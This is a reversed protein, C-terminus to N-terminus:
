FSGRLGVAMQMGYEQEAYLKAYAPTRDGYRLFRYPKNLINNASAVFSLRKTLQYTGNIDLVTRAEIYEHGNPGYAALPARKDLGRHNWRATFTLRKNAFTAGWNASKPIFSSFAAGPSGDLELKTGNAFLTFYSGWKGLMRLNQKLNIEAGTIRADGANFKSNINWDLYRDPLGLEALVEPTGRRSADGFFNKLQKLFLGASILGGNDTYYEASLDFNDATWPLLAPNRVNLTGRFQGPQLDDDEDPDTASTNAVTRPIIDSFNPRGYTKAWAARVLLNESANYTFHVSPYYGDYERHTFFSRYSRTLLSEALSGAAGAEPRRLRQGAANRVFSGDANRQWIKETDVLGGIGDDVTKEFRVGGLVLLRNNFLQTDAQLYAAQVKEKINENNDIHGNRATAMQADTQQYLLPNLQFARYARLPSMWNVSPFGYGTEVGRYVQMLYPEIPATAASAGNPGMFTWTPSYINTDLMVRRESAGAQVSAPVPLFALRRRVNLYAQHTYSRNNLEANGATNGRLNAPDNWDILNNANDRVEIRGPRAAGPELDLFSIRVPFRQIASAQLFFGADFYRRKTQSASRSVGSEVRWVGDDYRYNVTSSDTIQNILQNTGNNNLTGRGTAGITQDENWALPTGGAISSTITASTGFTYSLSGIRTDTRSAVHGVSLVSNRTPKWDAKVSLTNRTLDRPGDLLALTTLIPNAYNIPTGAPSGPPVISTWTQLTRHQENFVRAHTGAVVIGFTKTVPWTFDMNAGPLIKWTNRDRHSHPTAKFDLNEHNAVLNLSYRLERGKREFASKSILNVSGALSDAPNAPTPVKSLEIRSIDNLAMSRIDVSRTATTWINSAPAGDNTVATMGGGIGRVSIGSVDALDSEVTVGPLFKIFEGVSGGLVDGLSDTSMVNKINPAFRQENTAIAQADTEKNQSVVFADLKITSAAGQGYRRANTLDVNQEVSGDALVNVSVTQVDLDTFFVELTQPGAPVNVLRYTGDRDTFATQNSGKLTVRANNLYQGTAVNLVRGTITGTTQTATSSAAAAALLPPPLGLAIIGSLCALLRYSKM